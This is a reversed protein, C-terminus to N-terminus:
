FVLEHPRMRSTLTFRAALYKKLLPVKKVNELLAKDVTSQKAFKEKRRETEKAKEEQSKEPSTAFFTEESKKLKKAKLKAFYGDDVDNVNVNQLDVKTKTPIVYAQNVRKLPVGNIKFPGSVLLLGSKLHKLFVVRKGRFRGALLILVQGPAINRRLVSPKPAKQRRHFHVKEDDAKYWKSIRTTVGKKEGAKKAKTDKKPPM